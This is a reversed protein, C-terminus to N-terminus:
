RQTGARYCVSCSFATKRLDRAVRLGFCPTKLCRHRRLPAGGPSPSLPGLAPRFRPAGGRAASPPLRVQDSRGPQREHQLRRPREWPAVALSFAVPNTAARRSLGAVAVGTSLPSFSLASPVCRAGAEEVLDAECSGSGGGYWGRCRM